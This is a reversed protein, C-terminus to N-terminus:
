RGYRRQQAGEVVAKGDDAGFRALACWGDFGHCSGCRYQWVEYSEAELDVVSLYVVFHGDRFIHHSVLESLEGRLNVADKEGPM